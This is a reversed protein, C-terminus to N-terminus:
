KNDTEYNATGVISHGTIFIGNNSKNKSLSLCKKEASNGKKSTWKRKCCTQHDIVMKAKIKISCMQLRTM